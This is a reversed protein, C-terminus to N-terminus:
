RNNQALHPTFDTERLTEVLDTQNYAKDAGLSIRGGPRQNHRHQAM